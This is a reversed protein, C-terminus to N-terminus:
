LHQTIGSLSVLYPNRILIGASHNVSVPYSDYCHCHIIKLEYSLLWDNRGRRNMPCSSYKIIVIVIVDCIQKLIVGSDANKSKVTYTRVYQVEIDILPEEIIEKKM